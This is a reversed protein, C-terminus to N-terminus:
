WGGAARIAALKGEAVSGRMQWEMRIAAEEAVRHEAALARAQWDIPEEPEAPEEGPLAEAYEPRWASLDIPSGQYQKAACQTWGGFPIFNDVSEIGDYQAAWLPIGFFTDDDPWCWKGSYIGPNVGQEWCESVAQALQDGTPKTGDTYPEYDIWLYRLNLGCDRALAVADRIQQRADWAAYLWMYGGVRCGNQRASEIQLHSHDQSPLEGPQYMRVIVQTAGTEAILATLDAPQHSSVDMTRILAAPAPPEEPKVIPTGLPYFVVQQLSDWWVLTGTTTQQFANSEQDYRLPEMAEGVEPHEAAYEAFGQEFHYVPTEPEPPMYVTHEKPWRACLQGLEWIGTFDHGREPWPPVRGVEFWAAGVITVKYQEALDQYIQLCREAHATIKKDIEGTYRKRYGEDADIAVFLNELVVVPVRPLPGLQCFRGIRNPANPDYGFIPSDPGYTSQWYEHTGVQDCMWPIGDRNCMDMLMQYQEPEPNGVGCPTSVSSVKDAKCLRAFEKNFRYFAEAPWPGPKDAGWIENAAQLGDILAYKDGYAAKAEKYYEQAANEPQTVVAAWVNWSPIWRAYNLGGWSRVAQMHERSGCNEWVVLGPKSQQLYQWVEPKADDHCCMGARVTM